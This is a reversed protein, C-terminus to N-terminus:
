ISICCRIFGGWVAFLIFLYAFFLLRRKVSINLIRFIVWGEIIWVWISGFTYFLVVQKASYALSGGIFIAAIRLVFAMINLCMEKSQKDEADFILSLPSFCLALVFWPLLIVSYDGIVDWEEGLLFAFLYRNGGVLLLAVLTFLVGSFYAVLWGLHASKHM